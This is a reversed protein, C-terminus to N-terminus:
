GRLYEELEEVTYGYTDDPDGSSLYYAAAEDISIDPEEDDDTFDEAADYYSGLINQMCEACIPEMRRHYTQGYRHMVKMTERLNAPKGCYTCNYKGM